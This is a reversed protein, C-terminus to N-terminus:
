SRRTSKRRLEFPLFDQEAMAAQNWAWIGPLESMGEAYTAYVGSIPLAYPKIRSCDPAYFADAASFEGFLV